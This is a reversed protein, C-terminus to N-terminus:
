SPMAVFPEPKLAAGAPGPALQVRVEEPWGLRVLAARLLPLVAAADGDLELLFAAPATQTLRFARLPHHKFVWALAWADVRAGAPTVYECARRGAFGTITWGCFGCACAGAERAVDGRDGTRYRLLPLASDRLRTVVLEGDVSEVWVEPALVHFREPAALCEWAIPGTETTAYYNVVPAALVGALAARQAPAFRQASTLVLRVGAAAEARPALWHLGDPDSFIVAPAVRALRAAADARATSLRHLAGRGDGVLRLRVSYEMGGPLADLLVVRPRAPLAVGLRAAWFALAAWMVLSDWRDKVVLVPDGTTGSSKVAVLDDGDGLGPADRWREGLTARDLLPYAALADLGDLERLGLGAARLRECMLPSRGLRAALAPLRAELAARARGEDPEAALAALAMVTEELRPWLARQSATRRRIRAPPALATAATSSV